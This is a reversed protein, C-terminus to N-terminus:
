RRCTVFGDDLYMVVSLGHSRWRKVLERLIKSFILGSSSCGFPCVSYAYYSNKWEFGLYQMYAPHIDVHHFGSKLDFTIMYGKNQFYASAVQINEYKFHTVQLLPNVHRMDLVLRHKGASNTAVTLANVVTPREKCTILVGSELLKEIEVDVFDAQYKASKNNNICSSKPIDLLPLRYGEEVVNVIYNNTVHERWWPLNRRLSGKVRLMM